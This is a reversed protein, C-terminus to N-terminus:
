DTQKKNRARRGERGQNELQQKAIENLLQQQKELLADLKAMLQRSAELLAKAEELEDSM